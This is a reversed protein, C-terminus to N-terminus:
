GSGELGLRDGPLPLMEDERRGLERRFLALLTLAAVILAYSDFTPYGIWSLATDNAAASVLPYPAAALTWAILLRERWRAARKRRTVAQLAVLFAPILVPFAHLWAVPQMLLALPFALAYALDSLAALRRERHPAERSSRGFARGMRWFTIGVGGGAAGFIAAALLPAEVMPANESLGLIPSIMGLLSANWGAGFWNADLLAQAYDLYIAPHYLVPLGGLVLASLLAWLALRDRGAALQFVLLFVFGPMQAILCGLLVGAWRQRGSKLAAWLGIAPPLLLLYPQGMALCLWTPFFLLALVVGLGLRLPGPRFPKAPYLQGLHADLRALSLLLCFLSLVSFLLFGSKLPLATFPAMVLLTLPAVFLSQPRAAVGEEAGVLSQAGGTWSTQAYPDTGHVLNQSAM